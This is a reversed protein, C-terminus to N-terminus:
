FSYRLSIQAQRQPANATRSGFGTRPNAPDLGLVTNVQTINETNFANFLDLRVEVQHREAFRFAKAVTLDFNQFTELRYSNRGVGAPRDGYSTPFGGAANVGDGDADSGVIGTYPL